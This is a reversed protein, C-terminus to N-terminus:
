VEAETPTVKWSRQGKMVKGTGVGTQLMELGVRVPRNLEREEACGEDRGCQEGESDSARSLFLGAM